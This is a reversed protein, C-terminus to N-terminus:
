RKRSWSHDFWRLCWRLDPAWFSLSVVLYWVPDCAMQINRLVRTCCPVPYYCCSWRTPKHLKSSHWPLSLIFRQIFDTDPVVSYYDSHIDFGCWQDRTTPTNGSCSGQNQFKSNIPEPLAAIPSALAILFISCLRSM